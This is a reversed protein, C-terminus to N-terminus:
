TLIFNSTTLLLDEICLNKHYCPIRILPINNKFFFHNKELDRQHIDSLLERNERQEFHQIGDYEIIYSNNVYFDFRYNKLLIKEQEFSINNEKLLAAIKNEGTSRLCGCSKTDGNLLYQAEKECFNGCDCRCKWFYTRGKKELKELAVLKGFRQGTLDKFYPTNINKLNKLSSCKKCM